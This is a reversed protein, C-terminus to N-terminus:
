DERAARALGVVALRREARQPLLDQLAPAIPDRRV